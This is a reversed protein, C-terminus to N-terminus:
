QQQRPSNTGEHAYHQPIPSTMSTTLTDIPPASCCPLFRVSDAVFLHVKGTHELVDQKLRASILERDIEAADFEGEASSATLGTKLRWIASSICLYAGLGLGDKVGELYLKALRLRKQAPTEDEDEEASEYANPDVDPARLDMEDVGAADDEDNTDESLEEDVAKRQPRPTSGSAKKSGKTSPQKGHRITKKSTSPGDAASASRKRKRTKTSAFFADPM